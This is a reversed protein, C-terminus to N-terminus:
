SRMILLILLQTVVIGYAWGALLQTPTHLKLPLRALGAVIAMPAIVLAMVVSFPVFLSACIMTIAAHFSIKWFRNIIVSGIITLLLAFLMQIQGWSIGIIAYISFMASLGIFLLIFVTRHYNKVQYYDLTKRKRLSVFHYFWSPGIGILFVIVDILALKIDARIYLSIFFITILIIPLPHFIGSVVYAIRYLPTKENL